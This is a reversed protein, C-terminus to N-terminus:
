FINFLTIISGFFDLLLKNAELDGGNMLKKVIQNIWIFINMSLNIVYFAITGGM